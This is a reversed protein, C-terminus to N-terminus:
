VVLFGLIGVLTVYILCPIVVRKLVEREKGKIGVVAMAPLIDALSVMNGAAAGVLELSLIIASAAGVDVAAKALIGGFMINSLTASGTMFSGFAGLVPSILPLAATKLGQALVDDQGSNIMIQALASMPAIIFFPELSRKFSDKVIERAKSLHKKWFLFFVVSTLIFIVGPNFLSFKHTLGFNFSFGINGLAFKGLILLTVLLLYPFIVKGVSLKVDVPERKESLMLNKPVLFKLRIALLVIALGVISGIISPFEQGLYTVFFAPISYALGVFIAFPLAEFFREKWNEKRFTIAFLMFVPVLSGIINFLGSYYPIQSIDLGSFGIRIPTGAAGFVVSASNGLLAIAVAPIPSLGLGVLIPAVVTSPTGFGSTGELFNELFWALLIVQVRLDKSFTELYFCLNQIVNVKKLLSIFFIAGFVILFIDFAILGGKLLASLILSFNMQWYFFALLASLLLSVFSATLIKLRGVFLLGVFLVFPLIALFFM